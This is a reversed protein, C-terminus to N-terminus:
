EPYMSALVINYHCAFSFIKCIIGFISEGQLNQGVDVIKGHGRDATRVNVLSSHELTKTEKILQSTSFGQLKKAPEDESLTVSV